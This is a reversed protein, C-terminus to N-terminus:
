SVARAQVYARVLYNSLTSIHRPTNQLDNWGIKLEDWTGSTWRCLPAIRALEVKVHKTAHSGRLDANVMVRDMLRGMARIGIGHMLRSQTPPLGWAEPFTEKVATWYTILL